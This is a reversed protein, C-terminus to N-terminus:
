REDRQQVVRYAISVVTLSRWALGGRRWATAPSEDGAVTRYAHRAARGLRWLRGAHLARSLQFGLGFAAGAVAARRVRPSRVARALAGMGGARRRLAAPATRVLATTSSTDMGVSYNVPFPRAM